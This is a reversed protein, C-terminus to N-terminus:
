FVRTLLYVFSVRSEELSDFPGPPDDLCLFERVPTSALLGKHQSLTCLYHHLASQRADLFTPQFNDRVRRKPPLSLGLWPFSAKLKNDLRVFDTYRRFVTWMGHPNRVQVKYVTFKSRREAVEYGVVAAIPGSADDERGETEQYDGTRFSTSFSVVGESSLRASTRRSEAREAMDHDQPRPRPTTDCVRLCAWTHDTPGLFSCTALM